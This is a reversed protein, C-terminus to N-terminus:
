RSINGATGFYGNGNLYPDQSTIHYHYIGDPFDATVSIHGHYDDLDSNTITKGNEVPGYVPFGDALLGLFADEGFTETLYTPEIHYHYMDGGTPHGLWQDFSNIENTLPEDPGAYQNFFVVGNRSVGIPGLPTAEKVSAEEPNLTITFVVNQTAIENPNKNWQPNTGNYAEYLPNAEDYYPSTHNPLDPTTFTVTNGTVAYSLGTGVFKSLISSVDYDTTETMEEEEEIESSSDDSSSCSFFVSLCVISFLFLPKTIKM